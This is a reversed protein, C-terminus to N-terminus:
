DKTEFVALIGGTFKVGAEEAVIENSIALSSGATLTAHNLPYKFGTLTVGSVTGAFPLFSIYDGFQESKRLTFDSQKLYIKNNKDLICANVKLQLPLLLLHLNALTHDLRSGTAGILHLETPNHMLALEMAIQTDSKDKETPFTKIPTSAQRYGALIQEPVSDFDGVIYDLTLKLADAALLGHDAAIMMTYNEAELRDRLFVEDVQGGTIILIRNYPNTGAMNIETRSLSNARMYRALSNM